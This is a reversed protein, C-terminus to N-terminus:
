QIRATKFKLNTSAGSGLLLRYTQVSLGDLPDIIIEFRSTSSSYESVTCDVLLLLLSRAGCVNWLSKKRGRRTNGLLSILYYNTQRYYLAANYM